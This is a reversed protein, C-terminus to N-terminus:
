PTLYGIVDIRIQPVAEMQKNEYSLISVLKGLRFVELVHFCVYIDMPNAYFYNMNFLLSRRAFMATM